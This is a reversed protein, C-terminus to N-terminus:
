RFHRRRTIRSSDSILTVLVGMLLMSEGSWETEIVEDLNGDLLKRPSEKLRGFGEMM